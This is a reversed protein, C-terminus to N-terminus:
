GRDWTREFRVIEPGRYKEPTRLPSSPFLAFQQTAVTKRVTVKKIETEHQVPWRRVFWGLWWSWRHNKKFHQWPSRPFEFFVSREENIEVEKEALKEGLIYARLEIILGELIEGQYARVDVQDLFEQTLHRRSAFPIKELTLTDWEIPRTLATRDYDM